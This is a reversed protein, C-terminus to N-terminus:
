LRLAARMSHASAAHGLYSTIGLMEETTRLLSYHNFYESTRSPGTAPAVAIMAVQCGPYATANAHASDDCPEGPTRDTGGEDWTILIATSGDKYAKSSTIAPIWVRLFDDAAPGSDSGADPYVFAFAPLSDSALDDHLTGGAPDGMSVEWHACRTAVSPYWAVPYDGCMGQPSEVYDRWQMGSTQVQDFISQQSQACAAPDCDTTTAAGQVTGSTAAIYNPLSPHTINHYNMALGCRDILSSTYTAFNSPSMVEQEDTNEFWIWIVHRYVSPPQAVFNCMPDHTRPAVTAGGSGAGSSGCAAIVVAALLTISVRRSRRAIAVVERGTSPMRGDITDGRLPPEATGRFPQTKVSCPRTM